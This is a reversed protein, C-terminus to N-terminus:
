AFVGGLDAVLRYFRNREQYSLLPFLNRTTEMLALAAGTEAQQRSLWVVAEEWTTFTKIHRKGLDDSYDAVYATKTSNGSRWSRERVSAM